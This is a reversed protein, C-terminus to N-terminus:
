FFTLIMKTIFKFLFFGEDPIYFVLIANISGFDAKSNLAWLLNLLLGMNLHYCLVQVISIGRSCGHLM